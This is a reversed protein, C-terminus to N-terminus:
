AQFLSPPLHLPPLSAPGMVPSPLRVSEPSVKLESDSTAMPDSAQSSSEFLSDLLEQRDADSALLQLNLEDDIDIVDVLNGLNSLIFSQCARLLREGGKSGCCGLALNADGSDSSSSHRLALELLVEIRDRNVHRCLHDECLTKLQDLCFQDALSFASCVLEFPCESLSQLESYLFKLVVEFSRPEVDVLEVQCNPFKALLRDFFPCASALVIRNAPFVVRNLGVVIEVDPSAQRRALTSLSFHASLLSKTRRNFELSLSGAHKCRLISKFMAVRLPNPDGSVRLILDVSPAPYLCLLCCLPSRFGECSSPSTPSSDPFRQELKVVLSSIRELWSECSFAGTTAFLRFFDLLRTVLCQAREDRQIRDNAAFFELTDLIKKGFVEKFLFPFLQVISHLGTVLRMNLKDMDCFQMLAPRLVAEVVERPIKKHQSDLRALAMKSLLISQSCALYTHGTPKLIAQFFVTMAWNRHKRNEPRDLIDFAWNCRCVLVFLLVIILRFLFKDQPTKRECANHADQLFDLEDLVRLLVIERLKRKQSSNLARTSSPDTPEDDEMDSFSDSVFSEDPQAGVCVEQFKTVFLANIPVKSDQKLYNSHFLFDIHQDLSHQSPTSPCSEHNLLSALRTEVQAATPESCSGACSVFRSFFSEVATTVAAVFSEPFRETEGPAEGKVVPSCCLRKPRNLQSDQSVMKRKQAVRKSHDFKDFEAELNGLCQFISRVVCLPRLYKVKQTTLSSCFLNVVSPFRGHVFSPPSDDAIPSSSLGCKEPSANLDQIPNSKSPCISASADLFPAMRFAGASLSMVQTTASSPQGDRYVPRDALSVFSSISPTRVGVGFSSPLSVQALSSLSGIGFISSKSDPRSAGDVRAVPRQNSSIFLSAPPLNM